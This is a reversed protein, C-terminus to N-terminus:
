PELTDCLTVKDRVTEFKVDQPYQDKTTIVFERKTFGSDFTMLDMVVKVTGTM